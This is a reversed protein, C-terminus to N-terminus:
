KGNEVGCDIKCIKQYDCNRCICCRYDYFNKCTTDCSVYEQNHINGDYGTERCHSCSSCNDIDCKDYKEFYLM